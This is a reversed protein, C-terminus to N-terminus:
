GDPYFRDHKARYHVTEVAMSHLQQCWSTTALLPRHSYGCRGNPVAQSPARRSASDVAFIDTPRLTQSADDTLTRAYPDRAFPCQSPAALHEGNAYMEYARRRSTNDATTPTGSGVPKFAPDENLVAGWGYDKSDAHLYTTEIFSGNRHDPANRWWELERRM